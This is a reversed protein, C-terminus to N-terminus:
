DGSGARCVGPVELGARGSVLRASSSLSPSPHWLETQPAVVEMGVKSGLIIM